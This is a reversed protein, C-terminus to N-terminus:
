GPDLQLVKISNDLVWKFDRAIEADFKTIEKKMDRFKDTFQSLKGVVIKSEGRIKIILKTQLHCDYRIGDVQAFGNLSADACSNCMQLKYDEVHHNCMSFKCKIRPKTDYIYTRLNEDFRDREEYRWQNCNICNCLKGILKYANQAIVEKAEYWDNVTCIDCRKIFEDTGDKVTICYKFCVDCVYENQLSVKMFKPELPKYEYGMDQVYQLENPTLEETFQNNVVRGIVRNTGWPVNSKRHRSSNVAFILGVKILLDGGFEPKYKLYKELHIKCYKKGKDCQETCNTLGCERIDDITIIDEEIVMEKKEDIEVPQIPTVKLMKVNPKIKKPEKTLAVSGKINAFVANTKAFRNRPEETVNDIVDCLEAIKEDVSDITNILNNVQNKTM